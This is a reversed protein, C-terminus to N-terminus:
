KQAVEPRSGDAVIPSLVTGPLRRRGLQAVVLARDELEGYIQEFGSADIMHTLHARDLRVERFDNRDMGVALEMAVKEPPEERNAAADVCGTEDPLSRVIHRDKAATQGANGM